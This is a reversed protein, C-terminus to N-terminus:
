LSGLVALHDAGAGPVAERRVGRDFTALAGENRVALALLYADTIERHGSLRRRDIRAGDSLSIDDSWFLHGAHRSFEELRTLANSITTISKVIRSIRFKPPNASGSSSLM